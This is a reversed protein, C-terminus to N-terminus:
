NYERAKIFAWQMAIQREILDNNTLIGNKFGYDGPNKGKNSSILKTSHTESFLPLITSAIHDDYYDHLEVLIDCYRLNKVSERTFLELEYGECDCIVLGRKKFDFKGLDADSFQGKVFVRESVGNTLAMRRCLQQARPNTDFAFVDTNQMQMALGVAYYGEACGVDVVTTYEAALIEKIVENLEDEYSGVLKALLSSGTSTFSPYQMGKFPGSLVLRNPSLLKCKEVEEVQRIYFYIYKFFTRFSRIKCVFNLILDLSTKIWKKM